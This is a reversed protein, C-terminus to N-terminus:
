LLSRICFLLSLFGWIKEPKVHQLRMAAFCHFWLIIIIIFIGARLSTYVDNARLYGSLWGRQLNFQYISAFLSLNTRFRDDPLLRGCRGDRRSESKQDNTNQPAFGNSLYINAFISEITRMQRADCLGLHCHFTHTHFRMFHVRNSWKQPIRCVRFLLSITQELDIEEVCGFLVVSVIAPSRNIEFCKFNSKPFRHTSCASSKINSTNNMLQTMMWMSCKMEWCHLTHQERAIINLHAPETGNSFSIRHSQSGLFFHHLSRQTRSKEITDRAFPTCGNMAGWGCQTRHSRTKADRNDHRSRSKAIWLKRCDVLWQVNWCWCKGIIVNVDCKGHEVRFFAFGIRLKPISSHRRPSMWALCRSCSGTSCAHCKQYMWETIRRETDTHTHSRRRVTSMTFM